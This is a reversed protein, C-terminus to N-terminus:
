APDRERENIQGEDYRNTKVYIDINKQMGKIETLM